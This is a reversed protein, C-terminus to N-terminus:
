LAAFVPISEEMGKFEVLKKQELDALLYSVRLVEIGTQAAVGRVSTTGSKIALYILSKEYERVLMDDMVRQFKAEDWPRGYVDGKTTIRQQKGVLWRMVEGKVVLGAAQLQLAHQSPDFPGCARVNTTAESVIETFRKAEASSVWDVHLRDGGIGALDLLQKTMAM